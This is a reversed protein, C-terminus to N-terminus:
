CSPCFASCAFFGRVKYGVVHGAPDVKYLQPGKEDDVSGIMLIVALSRKYAQQTYIQLLRPPGSPSSWCLVHSPAISLPKERGHLHTCSPRPLQQARRRLVCRTTTQSCRQWTRSQSLTATRFSLSRLRRGRRRSRRARTPQLIRHSPSPRHSLSSLLDCLPRPSSLEFAFSFLVALRHRTRM